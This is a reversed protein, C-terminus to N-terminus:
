TSATVALLSGGAPGITSGPGLTGSRNRVRRRRIGRHLPSPRLPGPAALTNSRVDHCQQTHGEAVFATVDVELDPDIPRRQNAVMTSATMSCPCNSRVGVTGDNLTALDESVSLRVIRKVSALM